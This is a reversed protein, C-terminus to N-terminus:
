FLMTARQEVKNGIRFLLRPYQKELVVISVLEGLFVCRGCVFLLLRKAKGVRVFPM